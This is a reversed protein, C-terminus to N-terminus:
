DFSQLQLPLLILSICNIQPVPGSLDCPMVEIEVWHALGTAHGSTEQSELFQQSVIRCPDKVNRCMRVLLLVLQRQESSDKRHHIHLLCSLLYLCHRARSCLTPKAKLRSPVMEKQLFLCAHNNGMIFLKPERFEPKSM